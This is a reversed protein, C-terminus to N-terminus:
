LGAGVGHEGFATLSILEHRHNSLFLIVVSLSEFPLFFEVLSVTLSIVNLLVLSQVLHLCLIFFAFLVPSDTRQAFLIDHKDSDARRQEDDQKGGEDDVTKTTLVAFLLM